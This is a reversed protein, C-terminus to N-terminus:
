SSIKDPAGAPRKEFRRDMWRNVRKQWVEEALYALALTLAVKLGVDLYLLSPATLLQLNCIIPYHLVYLAYSMGAFIDFPGLTFAFGKFGTKKWAFFLLVLVVGAAYHRLKVLPYDIVDLRGGHHVWAWVVWACALGMLVLISIMGRQGRLTFTGSGVYERAFELGCWWIPFSALIHFFINPAAQDGAVGALGLAFVVIKQRGTPVFRYLPYFMMYFWWEYSLSWLPGNGMFPQAKWGPDSDFGQLMMVNGLLGPLDPPQLGRGISAAAYAVLLSLLFIPYIRRFRKYFFTGFNKTGAFEHWSYYIVFGSLFFFLLVGEQAFRFPQGIWSRQLHLVNSSLHSLVVYIAAFGRLSELKNIKM